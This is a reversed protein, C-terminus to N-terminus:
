PGVLESVLSRIEDPRFPKELMPRGSEQFLSKMDQNLTDGSVFGLHDALAPYDRRIHRYLALGDGDNMRLDTVVADFAQEGLHGMAESGSAASVVHHGDAELIERMTQIIDAEDDVILIEYGSAPAAVEQETEQEKTAPAKPLHVTFMCGGGPNDMLAISGNHSDVIKRTLALGLGTGSGAEKTTFFPEFIRNKIDEPIGPGNDSVQLIIEDSGAMQQTRVSITRDNEVTDLAHQANVVLNLVIQGLQDPDGWVPPLAEGLEVDVFISSQSLAYKLVELTDTITENLDVALSESPNQRAMALFSKVIRACRDAANGILEARRQTKEDEATEKMLLTQGVVVSLPNNLEHAVGALMTGLASMKESQVLAEHQQNVEQEARRLETVDRGTLVAGDDASPSVTFLFHKGDIGIYEGVQNAPAQLWDLIAAPNKPTDTYVDITHDILRFLYKSLLKASKGVLSSKSRSFYQAFSTNCTVLNLDSDWLCFLQPMAEIADEFRRQVAKFSTIDRALFIQGGDETLWDNALYVQGDKNEIEVSASKERSFKKVIEVYGGPEQPVDGQDFKVINNSSIEVLDDFHMGLIDSKPLKTFKEYAANCAVLSLEDDYLAFVDSMAELANDMQSQNQNLDNQLLKYDTVDVSVSVFGDEEAAHYGTQYWTGDDMEVEWTEGSLSTIRDLVRRNTQQEDSVALSGVSRVFATANKVIEAVHRGLLDERSKRHYKTYATNCGLLIGNKDYLGFAAPMVDIADEFRRQALKLSTIDRAVFVVGNNKTAWDNALIIRGDKTEIERDAAQQGAIPVVFNAYDVPESAIPGGNIKALYQHSNAINDFHRTGILESIEKHQYRAYAENCVVLRRDEDYLAFIDPVSDIADELLSQNKHAENEILKQQTIDIWTAVLGGDKLGHYSTLYWHGDLTETEWAGSSLNKMKELALDFLGEPQKIPQGDVSKLLAAVDHAVQQLSQGILAERTRKHCAAYDENCACLILDKDFLAFAAPMAEIAELLVEKSVLDTTM